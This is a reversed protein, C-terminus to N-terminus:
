TNPFFDTKFLKTAQTWPVVEGQARQQHQDGGYVIANKYQEHKSLHSFYELQAFFKDTITQAAKIEIAYREKDAEIICDIEHGTKDRWFSLPPRLGQNLYYKLFESIIFSEFLSGRLPHTELHSVHRIELLSCLLGPDIVYLKPMKILRKRFNKHSPRLLYVLHSAELVSLWAKATNHTIGCDNAISSLNLLQGTRGACIKLFQQFVHLDTINKILRVDREVYTAIYNAYWEHPEISSDYLRPFMGKYLYNMYGEEQRLSLEAISLPLLTYIAARGALSQTISELLLFNQSGTLIFEGPKKHLDVIGQIYSFIDPIRQVEDIIVGNAYTAFFGRPDHMAYARTDPDEFSVYAMHPFTKKVLTTKGSQRPGTLSIVPFQKAAKQLLPTLRREIYM